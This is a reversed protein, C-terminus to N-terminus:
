ASPFRLFIVGSTQIDMTSYQGTGYFNFQSVHVWGGGNVSEVIMAHGIPSFSGSPPLIVADGPQPSDVRVAGSYMPASWPWDGANGNGSFNGVYKNFRNQLAWAVYSVCERNYLGWQDVVSDQSQCYSYGGSCGGAGNSPSLNQWQFSGYVGASAGGRSLLSQYYARQANAADTMKQQTSAVIQQYAAEQGQTQSLLSQQQAQQAALQAKQANQQDLVKQTDAKQADLQTKLDKIQTITATLEDRVSNRYEQKDLYDSVNKSSAIMELPSIKGDVYLDAITEGLADQNDKIKKETDAIDVVLKDYKAQSLDIQGQTAAVQAQIQSVAVQLTQAQSALQSAQAQASNIQQQLAGIQDDYRDAFVKQVVQVPAAVAILISGFILAIKAPLSISAPTTTRLKM